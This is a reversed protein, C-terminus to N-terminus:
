LSTPQKKTNKKKKTGNTEELSKKKAKNENIEELKKKSYLGYLQVKKGDRHLPMGNRHGSQKPPSSLNDIEETVPEEAIEPILSTDLTGRFDDPLYVTPDDDNLLGYEHVSEQFDKMELSDNITRLKFLGSSIAKELQAPSLLLSDCIEKDTFNDIKGSVKVWFCYQCGSDTVFYPCGGVRETERKKKDEGPSRIVNIRELALPCANSPLNELKRLCTEKFRNSVKETM